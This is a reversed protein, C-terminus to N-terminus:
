TTRKEWMHEFEKKLSDLFQVAGKELAETIEENFRSTVIGIKLKM